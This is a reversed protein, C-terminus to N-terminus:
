GIGQVIDHGSQVFLLQTDFIAQDQIGLTPDRFGDGGVNEQDPSVFQERGTQFFSAYGANHPFVDNLM